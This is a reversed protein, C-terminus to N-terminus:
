IVLKQYHKDIKQKIFQKQHKIITKNLNQQLAM